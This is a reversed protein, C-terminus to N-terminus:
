CKQLKIQIYNSFKPSNAEFNQFDLDSNACFVSFLIEIYWMESLLM